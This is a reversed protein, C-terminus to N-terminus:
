DPGPNKVVMAPSTNQFDTQLDQKLSGVMPTEKPDSTGTETQDRHICEKCRNDNALDLIGYLRDGRRM